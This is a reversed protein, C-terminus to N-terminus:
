NGFALYHLVRLSGILTPSVPFSLWSRSRYPVTKLGDWPPRRFPRFVTGQPPFEECPLSQHKPRADLEILRQDRLDLPVRIEGSVRRDLLENCMRELLLDSLEFLRFRLLLQLLLEFAQAVDGSTGRRLRPSPRTNSTTSPGRRGNGMVTLREITEAMVAMARRM